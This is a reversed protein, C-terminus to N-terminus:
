LEAQFYCRGKRNVCKLIQEGLELRAYWKLLVDVRRKPIKTFRAVMEENWPKELAFFADLKAKDDGLAKRCKAVADKVSRVNAKEFRYELYNPQEGEVGFFDADNSAQVGFWFKGKIDGSYFRGM